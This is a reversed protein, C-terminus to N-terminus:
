RGKFRYRSYAYGTFSVFLLTLAATALAILITNWVWNLFYTKGFLYQFHKMSFSFSVGIQIYSGHNGNFSAFLIQALPWLIVFVYFFLLVYSLGLMGVKVATLPPRDSLYLGKEKKKKM